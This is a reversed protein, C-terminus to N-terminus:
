ASQAKRLPVLALSSESEWSQEPSTPLMTVLKLYRQQYHESADLEPNHESQFRTQLRSTSARLRKVMLQQMDDDHAKKHRESCYQSQLSRLIGLRENCYLCTKM